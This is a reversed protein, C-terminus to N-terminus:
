NPDPDQLVHVMACHNNSFSPYPVHAMVCSSQHRESHQIPCIVMAVVCPHQARDMATSHHRDSSHDLRQDIAMPHEGLHAMPLLKRGESCNSLSHSAPTLLAPLDAMHPLVMLDAMPPFVLLGAMTALLLLLNAMSHRSVPGIAMLLLQDVSAKDEQAPVAM